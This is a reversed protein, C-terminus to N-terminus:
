YIVSARTSYDQEQYHQGVPPLNSTIFSFLYSALSHAKAQKKKNKKLKWTNSDRIIFDYMITDKRLNYVYDYITKKFFLKSITLVLWIIAYKQM